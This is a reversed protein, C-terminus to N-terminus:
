SIWPWAYLHRGQRIIARSVGDPGEIVRLVRVEGPEPHRDALAWDGEFVSATFQTPNSRLRVWQIVDQSEISITVVAFPAGTEHRKLVESVDTSM